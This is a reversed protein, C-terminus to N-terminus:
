KKLQEYIFNRNTVAKAAREYSKNSMKISHNPQMILRYMHTNVELDVERRVATLTEGNENM